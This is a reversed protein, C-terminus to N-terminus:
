YAMLEYGRIIILFFFNSIYFIFLIVPFFLTTLQGRSTFTYNANPVAAHLMCGMSEWQNKSLSDGVFMVKKGRYRELFEKGDFRNM